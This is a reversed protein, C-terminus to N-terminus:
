LSFGAFRVVGCFQDGNQLRIYRDPWDPNLAELYLDGDVLSLKKFTAKAGRRVIAFTGPLAEADPSVFLKIGDPFSPYVSPPATMSPGRVTLVFGCPGLDIPCQHWVTSEDPVFNECMETWMGAQVWSIEPYRRPKLDPGLEFNDGSTPRNYAVASQSNLLVPKVSEITEDFWGAMGEFAEIKRITKETIPRTGAILQRVQGGDKHGLRRGFASKNGGDLKEIAAELRSIRWKELLELDTQKM